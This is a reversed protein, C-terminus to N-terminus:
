KSKLLGMSKDGDEFMAAVGSGSGSEGDDETVEEVVEATTEESAEADGEDDSGSGGILGRLSNSSLPVMRYLPQYGIQTVDVGTKEIQSELNKSYLLVLRSLNAASKALYYAQVRSKQMTVIESNRLSESFFDAVIVSLIGIVSVVILIAVGRQNKFKYKM